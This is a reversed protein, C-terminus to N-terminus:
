TKRRAIEHTTLSRDLDPKMRTLVVERSVPTPRDKTVVFDCLYARDDREPFDSRYHSGRSEKRVLAGNVIAESVDLYNEM